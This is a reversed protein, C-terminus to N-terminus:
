SVYQNCDAAKAGGPKISVVHWEVAASGVVNGRMEVSSQAEGDTDNVDAANEDDIVDDDDDDDSSADDTQIQQMM